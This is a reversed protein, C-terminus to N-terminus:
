MLFQKTSYPTTQPHLPHNKIQHVYKESNDRLGFLNGSVFIVGYSVILYLQKNYVFNKTVTPGIYYRPHFVTIFTVMHM